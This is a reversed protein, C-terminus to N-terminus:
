RGRGRADLAVTRNSIASGPGGEQNGNADQETM